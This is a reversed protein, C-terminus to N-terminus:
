DVKVPKHNHKSQSYEGDYEAIGHEAALWADGLARGTEAGRRQKPTVDQLQGIIFSLAM